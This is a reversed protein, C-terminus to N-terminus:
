WLFTKKKNFIRTASLFNRLFNNLIALLKMKKWLIRYKFNIFGADM